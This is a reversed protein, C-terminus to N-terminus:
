VWASLSTPRTRWSPRLRWNTSFVWTCASWIVPVPQKHYSIIHHHNACLGYLWFLHCCSFWPVVGRGALREMFNLIIHYFVPRNFLSKGFVLDTIEFALPAFASMRTESPSVTLNWFSYPPLSPSFCNSILHFLQMTQSTKNHQWTQLPPPPLPPLALVCRPSRWRHESWPKRGGM